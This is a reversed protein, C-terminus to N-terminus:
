KHPNWIWIWSNFYKFYNIINNSHLNLKFRNHHDSM